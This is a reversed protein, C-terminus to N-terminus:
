SWIPMKNLPAICIEDSAKLEFDHWFPKIWIIYIQNSEHIVSPYLAWLRIPPTVSGNTNTINSYFGLLGYYNGVNRMYTIHTIDNETVSTVQRAVNAFPLTRTLSISEDIESMSWTDDDNNLNYYNQFYSSTGWGLSINQSYYKENFIPRVLRNVTSIENFNLNNEKLSGFKIITSNSIYEGWTIFITKDMFNISPLTLFIHHTKIITKSTIEKMTRLDHVEYIIFGDNTHMSNLTGYEDTGKYDNEALYVLHLINSDDIVYDYNIISTFEIEENHFLYIIFTILLLSVIFLSFITKM